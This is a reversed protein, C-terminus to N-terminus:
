EAVTVRALLWDTITPLFDATFTPELVAYEDINGTVASQFLHNADPLTVITFDANGAAELAETLPGINQPGDVQLDLGGYLALVPVTIKAWDVAPDYELMTPFWEMGYGAIFTDATQAAFAEADGIYAREEDTMLEIQALTKEYTLERVADWDRALMLPYITDLYEIQLDVYEQGLGSAGLLLENQLKLLDLGSVATGAMSIIFAIGTDEQAGIFASYIGGESHGFIGVEDPNIDARARLYGVAALGDSAFDYVTTDAYVGTSAGVGRDDYRLVAVGNRTLHDAILKFIPFGPIIEEDRTQPGSGTMMIFAPHPGDGEPLTLTGTLTVDGNTFTVEEILYPVEEEVVDLPALTDRVPVLVDAELADIEAESGQILLLYSRGDKEAISFRVAITDRGPVPVDVSYVDWVFAATEVQEVPEPAEALSLQPLISTLMLSAQVPAAQVALLTSDNMMDGRAYIGTTIKAWGDPLVGTIEYAPDEFPVLTISEQAAVPILLSFVLVLVLLRRSIAKM